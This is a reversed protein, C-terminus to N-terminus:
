DIMLYIKPQQSVINAYYYFSLCRSSGDPFTQNQKASLREAIEYLQHVLHTPPPLTHLAHTLSHRDCNKNNYFPRLNSKFTDLRRRSIGNSSNLAVMTELNQGETMARNWVVCKYKAGDDIRRPLIQLTANTYHNKSGGKLIYSQLPVTSGERYWTIIPDPSGGISSCTMELPKDETAIAINGPSIIPPHPPTLVTLNYFEQHVDAGTGKAKIRCEFRGNDRNYSTNKIQLDYIGRSPRFDLQVRRLKESTKSNVGIRNIWTTDNSVIHDSTGVSTNIVKNQHLSCLATGYEELCYPLTQTLRGKSEKSKSIRAGGIKLYWGGGGGVMTFVENLKSIRQNEYTELGLNLFKACCIGGGIKLYWGGGGGVMTFVENLKSIRQNEYTELGLNLFKACCIGGGIKLYWGGGGGVM